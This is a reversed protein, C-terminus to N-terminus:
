EVPSLSQPASQISKAALSETTLPSISGDTTLLIARIAPNNEKMALFEAARSETTPTWLILDAGVAIVLTGERDIAYPIGDL